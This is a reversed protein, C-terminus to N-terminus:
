FHQNAPSTSSLQRRLKARRNCFWVQVREETLQIRQALEERDSCSPYRTREFARELEDIQHTTFTTRCRRKLFMDNQLSKFITGSESELDSGEGSSKGLEPEMVVSPSKDSRNDNSRSYSDSLGYHSTSPKQECSNRRQYINSGFDMDNGLPEKAILDKQQALSLSPVMEIPNISPTGNNDFAFPAVQSLDQIVARNEFDNDIRSRKVCPKSDEATQSPHSSNAVHSFSKRDEALGTVKLMDALKLVSNFNVQSVTVEGLYMFEVLAQLDCFEVDKLIIIPLSHSNNILLKEFYSSCACLVLRHCKIIQNECSLTVDTFHENNLLTAFRGKYVDTYKDWKLRFDKQEM